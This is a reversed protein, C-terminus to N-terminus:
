EAPQRATPTLRYINGRDTSFILKDNPSVIIHRIREGLGDLIRREDVAQNNKDLTIVNIHTLKLAPALLKGNLEPYNGGRYLLLSSPAISPVYVKVPSEIGQKERSEGVAIPGWYEQGHSTKPWGYNAGKKILNIEDGGRPGHEIAWLRKTHTDFYLGQPNRHGFSWIEAQTNHHDYFPNSQVASGDPMLRLITGAHTALDQANNREGRDGVSMFIYQNDFTLRSGFHRHTASASRTVLLDRWESLQGDLFNASALATETVHGIRKSYTLYVVGTEFPSVAIDLLGGQGQAVLDSPISLMTSRKGTLINISLIGGNRETILLTDADVFTMGWPVRLDTAITETEYNNAKVATNLAIVGLIFIPLFKQM